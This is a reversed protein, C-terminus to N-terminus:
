DWKIHCNGGLFYIMGQLDSIDILKCAGVEDYTPILLEQYILNDVTSRSAGEAQLPQVKYVFFAHIKSLIHAFIDQAQESFQHRALKKAFREKLLLASPILDKRNGADLKEELQRAPSEPAVAIFHKLCEIFDSLKKDSESELKFKEALQRLASPHSALIITKNIDGGAIDGAALNHSQNTTSGSM